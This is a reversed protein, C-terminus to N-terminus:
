RVSTSQFVAGAAPSPARGLEGTRVWQEFAAYAGWSSLSWCRRMLDLKVERIVAQIDRRETDSLAPRLASVAANLGRLRGSLLDCTADTATTDGPAVYSTRAGAADTHEYGRFLATVLIIAGFLAFFVGPGVRSLIVSSGGPLTFKGEGTAEYRVLVFLRYGFYICLIGAATVLLREVTRIVVVDM